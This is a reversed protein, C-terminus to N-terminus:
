YFIKHTLQQLLSQGQHAVWLKTYQNIDRIDGKRTLSGKQQLMKTNKRSHKSNKKRQIMGVKRMMVSDVNSNDYKILQVERQLVDVGCVWDDCTKIKRDFVIKTGDQNIVIIIQDDSSHVGGKSLASTLPSAQLVQCTETCVQKIIIDKKGKITAKILSNAAETTENIPEADHMGTPDNTIFCSSRSEGIWTKSTFPYFSQGDVNCMMSKSIGDMILKKKAKEVEDVFRAQKMSHKDQMGAAENASSVYEKILQEIIIDDMTCLM